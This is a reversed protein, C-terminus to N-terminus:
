HWDSYLVLDEEHYCQSPGLFTEESKGHTYATHSDGLSGTPCRSTAAKAYFTLMIQHWRSFQTLWCVSLSYLRRSREEEDVDRSTRRVRRDVTPLLVNGTAAVRRHFLRGGCTVAAGEREVKFRRSDDQIV